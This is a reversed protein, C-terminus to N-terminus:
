LVHGIKNAIAVQTQTLSSLYVVMLLDQVNNAFMKDFTRADIHPISSLAHVIERGISPDSPITGKVVQDVYADLDEVDRLLDALAIQLSDIDPIISSPSDFVDKDDPRGSISVDVGIKEAQSADLAFPVSEFRTVLPKAPDISITAAHYAKVSLKAGSLKTDVCLMVPNSCEEDYTRHIEFCNYDIRDGTAYWGVIREESNMRHHLATMQKQFESDVSVTDEEERHILPFCNSILINGDLDESGLLTGIVRTQKETRRKHHDLISIVVLPECTYKKCNESNLFLSQRDAISDCKGESQVESELEAM